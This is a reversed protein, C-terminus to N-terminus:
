IDFVKLDNKPRSVQSILSNTYEVWLVNNLKNTPLMDYVREYSGGSVTPEVALIERHSM